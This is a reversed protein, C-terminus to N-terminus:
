CNAKKLDKLVMGSLKGFVLDNKQHPNIGGNIWMIIITLKLPIFLNESSFCRVRPFCFYTNFKQCVVPIM